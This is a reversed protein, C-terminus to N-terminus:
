GASAGKEALANVLDRVLRRQPPALTVYADVMAREAPSLGEWAQAVEGVRSRAGGGGYQLVHADVGVLAALVRLKDQRPISKGNLWGSIAQSTVPAGEYRSNFRKELVAPSADIRAEKLAARLRASFEAKEDKM